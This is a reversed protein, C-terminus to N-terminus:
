KSLKELDDFLEKFSSWWNGDGIEWACWEKVIRHNSMKNIDDDYTEDDRNEAGLRERIDGLYTLSIYKLKEVNTM